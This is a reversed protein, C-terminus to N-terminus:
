RIKREIKNFDFYSHPSPLLRIVMEVHPFCATGRIRESHLACDSPSLGQVGLTGIDKIWPNDLRKKLIAKM